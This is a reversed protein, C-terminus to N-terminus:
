NRLSGFLGPKIESVLRGLLGPKIESVLRGLLGPKIESVLRGLLGSKIESVLRGLLGPKIELILRFDTCIQYNLTLSLLGLFIETASIFITQEMLKYVHARIHQLSPLTNQINM